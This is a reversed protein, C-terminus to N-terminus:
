DTQENWVLVCDYTGLLYFSDAIHCICRVLWGRSCYKLLKYNKIKLLGKHAALLFNTDDVACIDYIVSGESFEHTSTIKNTSLNLM